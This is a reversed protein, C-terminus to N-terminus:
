KGVQALLMPALPAHCLRSQVRPATVVLLAYSSFLSLPSGLLLDHPLCSAATMLNVM